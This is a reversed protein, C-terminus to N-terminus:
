DFHPHMEDRLVELYGRGHRVDPELYNGEAWENWLKIFILREDDELREVRELATRVSRRFLEPRSDQIVIGRTGVRPSNDWNPGICPFDLFDQEPPGILRDVIREHEYVFVRENGSPM